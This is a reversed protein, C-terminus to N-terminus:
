LHNCCIGSSRQKNCEQNRKEAKERSISRILRIGCDIWIRKFACFVPDPEDIDLGIRLNQERCPGGCMMYLDCDLCKKPINMMSKFWAMRKSIDVGDFVSGIATKSQRHCAFITGDVGVTAIKVGAGCENYYWKNDVLRKSFSLIQRFSVPKNDRIRDIIFDTAEYYDERIREVDDITFDRANSYACGEASNSYPEISVYRAWGDEILETLFKMRELLHPNDPGFTARILSPQVGHSRLNNFGEMTRDFSGAGNKFKRMGDHIHKPGDLSVIVSMQKERIFDAIEPTILTANTTTHYTAEIGRDEMYHIIDRMTNFAIFPEGGYLCVRVKDRYEFSDIARCAIDLPM